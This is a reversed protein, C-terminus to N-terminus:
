SISSKYFDPIVKSKPFITVGEGLYRLLVYGNLGECLVEEFIKM